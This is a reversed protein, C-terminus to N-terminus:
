SVVSPARPCWWTIAARWGTYATVGHRRQGDFVVAWGDAAALAIDEDPLVLWGGTSDGSRLFITLNIAPVPNRRDSHWGLATAHILGGVPIALGWADALTAGLPGLTADGPEHEYAHRVGAALARAARLDCGPPVPGYETMESLYPASTVPGDWEVPM